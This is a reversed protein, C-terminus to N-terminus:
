RSAMRVPLTVPTDDYVETEFVTGAPVKANKGHLFLFPWAVLVTLVGTAVKRGKGDRMYVGELPIEYGNVAEVSIPEFTLSGKRGLMRRKQAKVVRLKLEAGAAIVVKGDVEVDRYVEALVVDGAATETKKSTVDQTFVALVTTRRPLILTEGQPAGTSSPLPPLPAAAAGTALTFLLTWVIPKPARIM